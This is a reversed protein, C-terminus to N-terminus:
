IKVLRNMTQTMFAVYGAERITTVLQNMTYDEDVTVYANQIYAGSVLQGDFYVTTM